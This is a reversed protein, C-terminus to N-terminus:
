AAFYEEGGHGARLTTLAEALSAEPQNLRWEAYLGGWEERFEKTTPRAKRGGPNRSGSPLHAGEERGAPSPMSAPPGAGKEQRVGRAGM